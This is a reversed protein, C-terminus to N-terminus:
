RRRRPRRYRPSRRRPATRRLGRRTPPSPRGMLLSVAAVTAMGALAVGGILWPSALNFRRALAVTATLRGQPNHWTAEGGNVQHANSQVIKRGRVHVTSNMLYILGAEDVPMDMSFRVQDNGVSTLSAQTGTLAVQV